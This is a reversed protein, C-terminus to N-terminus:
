LFLNGIQNILLAVIYATTMQVAVAFGTLKWTKLERKMAGVAAFCPMCLLNFVMYAYAAAKTQIDDKMTTLAGEDGGEFLIGESYITLAAEESYIGNEFGLAELEDEQYQSFFEELYESSTDEDYLQAFTVVVNEKAIWGTIIGVTPRWAGFGLPKFVPAIVGSVEALFSDDMASMVSGDQNKEANKGNFSDVNFNSLLWLLITSLFIITGTKIIFGKIKEWGHIVVSKGTPV